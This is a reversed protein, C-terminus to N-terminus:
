PLPWDLQRTTTRSTAFTAYRSYSAKYTLELSTSAWQTRQQPLQHSYRNRQFDREYNKEEAKAPQLQQNLQLPETTMM